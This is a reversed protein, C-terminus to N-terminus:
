HLALRGILVVPIQRYPVKKALDSPLSERDLSRMSLTYFGVIKGTAGEVLVHPVALRRRYDQLAQEKFYRDLAPVGCVFGERYHKAGDLIESYYDAPM